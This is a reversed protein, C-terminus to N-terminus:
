HSNNPCAKLEAMAPERPHRTISLINVGHLIDRDLLRALQWLTHLGSNLLEQAPRNAGVLLNTDRSNRRLLEWGGRITSRNGSLKLLEQVPACLLSFIDGVLVNIARDIFGNAM